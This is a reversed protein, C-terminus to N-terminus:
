TIPATWAAAWTEPGILRDAVLGKESQFALAINSTQPGYLGDPNINWGRDKMRQQWARLDDRHSFYGSVSHAPGLKPGFYHGAPLPYAPAGSGPAPPLGSMSILPDQHKTGSLYHSLHLHAGPPGKPVVNGSWGIHGIITGAAVRTGVPLPGPANLHCYLFTGPVGDYQVGVRHGSRDTYSISHIVGPGSAPIPTGAPLRGWDCGDHIGGARPGYRSTINSLPFPLTLNTM